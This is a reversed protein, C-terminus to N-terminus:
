LLLDKDKYLQWQAFSHSMFLGKYPRLNFHSLKSMDDVFLFLLAYYVYFAAQESAATVHYVRRRAILQARLQQRKRPHGDSICYDDDGRKEFSM